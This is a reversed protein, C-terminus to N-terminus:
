ATHGLNQFNTVVGIGKVWYNCWVYYGRKVTSINGFELTSGVSHSCVYMNVRAHHMRFKLIAWSSHAGAESPLCGVINTRAQYDLM